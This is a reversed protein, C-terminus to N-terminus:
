FIQITKILLIHPVPNGVFRSRDIRNSWFCTRDACHAYCLVLIVEDSHKLARIRSELYTRVWAM